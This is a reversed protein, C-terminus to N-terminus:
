LASILAVLALDVAQFIPGGDAPTDILLGGLGSRAMFAPAAFLAPSSCDPEAEVVRHQAM